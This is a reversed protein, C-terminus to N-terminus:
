NKFQFEIPEQKEGYFSSYSIRIKLRKLSNEASELLGTHVKNILAEKAKRDGEETDPNLAAIMREAVNRPVRFKLLTREEGSGFGDGEEFWEFDLETGSAADSLMALVDNWGGNQSDGIPKDDVFLEFRSIKAPGIGTNKIWIRYLDNREEWQFTLHPVVSLRNHEQSARNQEVTYYLSMVAVCFALTAIITEAKPM